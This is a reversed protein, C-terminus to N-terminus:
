IIRVETELQINFKRLVQAQAYRILAMIDMCQAGGHNVIFNAHKNSFQAGGIQKGKLGAQELLRAAYDGEPNKFVSGCNPLSLPQSNNRKTRMALMDEKLQAPEASSLQFYADLVISQTALHTHRYTMNLNCAEISTVHGDRQLVNISVLTDSVQQGFAGANMAVGGGVDGPVTAMFALGAWGQEACLRSLKSMRVGAQAYVQRSEEFSIHNFHRLDIVVGAYGHDSILMNSGRGLPLTPIHSPILPIAKILEQPSSPSFFWHAMGGVGLTTYRSMCVQERLEGFAKIDAQWM